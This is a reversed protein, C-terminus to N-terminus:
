IKFTPYPQTIHLKLLNRLIKMKKLIGVMKKRAQLRKKPFSLPNKKKDKNKICSYHIKQVKFSKYHFNARNKNLSKNRLNQQFQNEV